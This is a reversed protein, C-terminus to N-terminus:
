FRCQIGTQLSNISESEGGVFVEGVYNIYISCARFRDFSYSAGVNFTFVSNGYRSTKLSTSIPGQSVTAEAYDDIVQQSFAVGADLCLSNFHGQVDAGLRIFLQDLSLNDYRFGGIGENAASVSNNLYDIAIFPRIATNHWTQFRRGFELNMEFTRGDPKTIFEQDRGFDYRSISYRQHGFGLMGRVDFGYSFLKAGYVGAYYDDGRISDNVIDGRSDEYGFMFGLHSGFGSSLDFGFQVGNSITKLMQGKYADYSSGASSKRGVYNVWANYFNRGDGVLVVPVRSSQGRHEAQSNDNSIYNGQITGHRYLLQNIRTNVAKQITNWKHLYAASAFIDSLNATDLVRALKITGDVLEIDILNNGLRLANEAGTIGGDAIAVGQKLKTIDANTLDLEWITGADFEVVGASSSGDLNAIARFGSEGNQTFGSRLVGERIFYSGAKHQTEGLLSLTGRGTKTVNGVIYHGDFDEIRSDIGTNFVVGASAFISNGYAANVVNSMAVNDRFLVDGFESSSVVELSKSTYIAGGRANGGNAISKNETFKGGQIKSVDGSDHNGNPTRTIVIAGGSASAGESINKIFDTKTTEIRQTSFIAGGEGSSSTSTAKNNTFTTETFKTIQNKINVADASTLINSNEYLSHIAVAGGAANNSQATVSNKDFIVKDFVGDLNRVLAVAGGFAEGNGNNITRNNTFNSESINLTTKPIIINQLTNGYEQDAFLAGGYANGNGGVSMTTSNNTFNLKSISSGNRIGSLYLGGGAVFGEINASVSNGVVNGEVFKAVDYHLIAAAGGAASKNQRVMNMNDTLKVSNNTFDIETLTISKGKNTHNPMSGGDIYLSGGHASFQKDSQIDIEIKNKDFIMKNFTAVRTNSNGDGMLNMAGGNRSANSTNDTDLFTFSSLNLNNFNINNPTKEISILRGSTGSQQSIQTLTPKGSINIGSLQETFNWITNSPNITIIDNDFALNITINNNPTDISSINDILGQVSYYNDAMVTITLVAIFFWIAVVRGVFGINDRIYIRMM